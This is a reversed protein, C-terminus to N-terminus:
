RDKEFGPIGGDALADALWGKRYCIREIMELVAEDNGWSLDLGDTEKDTIIGLEYLEMAWSILSGTELNDMGFQNVLHNGALVTTARPHTPRPESPVWPPTNRGKM